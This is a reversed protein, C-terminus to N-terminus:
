GRTVAYRHSAALHIHRELLIQDGTLRWPEVAEMSVSHNVKRMRWPVLPWPIVYIGWPVLEPRFQLVLLSLGGDRATVELDARQTDPIRDELVFEKPRRYAGAVRKECGTSKAEISFAIGGVLMGSFDAGSAEIFRARGGQFVRVAHNHQFRSVIRQQQLVTLKNKIAKEFDDGVDRSFHGL